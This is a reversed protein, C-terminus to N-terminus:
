SQLSPTGGQTEHFGTAMLLPFPGKWPHANKRGGYFGGYGNMPRLASRRFLSFTRASANQNDWSTAPELGTATWMQRAAYSLRTSRTFGSVCGM